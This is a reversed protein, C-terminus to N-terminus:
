PKLVLRDALLQYLAQTYARAGQQNLHLVDAFMEPPYVFYRPGLVTCPFQSELSRAFEDDHAPPVAFSGERAYYPVYYCTIHHLAITERLQLLEASAMPPHTRSPDVFQPQDTDLSYNDPLRENAYQSHEDIFYYGRDAIMRDTTRRAAAYYQRPGGRERSALLFRIVDTMLFRFPFVRSAFNHDDPILNFPDIGSRTNKWPFTLLLVDPSQGRDSMVKLQSVFDNAGPIGANFSYVQRHGAAALRDFEEPIFGTLIRSDGFILLRQAHGAPPFVEGSRALQMKARYVINSGPAVYPFASALTFFLLWLAAFGGVACVVLRLLQARDSLRDSSPWVWDATADRYIYGRRLLARRWGATLGSDHV